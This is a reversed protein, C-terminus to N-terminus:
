VHSPLTPFWRRGLKEMQRAWIGVTKQRAGLTASREPTTALVCVFPLARRYTTWPLTVGAAMVIGRLRPSRVSRTRCALASERYHRRTRITPGWRRELTEDIVRELRGGAQVFTEVIITLVQHFMSVNTERTALRVCPQQVLAVDM